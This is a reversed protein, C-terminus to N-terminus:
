GETIGGSERPCDLAKDAMRKAESQDIQSSADQWGVPPYIPFILVEPVIICVQFPSNIDASMNGLIYSEHSIDSVRCSFVAMVIIQRFQYPM